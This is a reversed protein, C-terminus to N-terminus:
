ATSCLLVHFTWHLTPAKYPRGCTIYSQCESKITMACGLRDSAFRSTIRCKRQLTTACSVDRVIRPAVEMPHSHILFTIYSRSEHKTCRARPHLACHLQSMWTQSDYCLFRGTCHASDRGPHWSRLAVAVNMHLLRLARFMWHLARLLLLWGGVDYHAQSLITFQNFLGGSGLMIRAHNTGPGFMVEGDQVRRNASSVQEM